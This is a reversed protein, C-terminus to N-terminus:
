KVHGWRQNALIRQVQARSVGFRQAIDAHSNPVIRGHGWRGLHTITRPHFQAYERIERVIDETIKAMGNREGLACRNKKAADRMNDLQTGLFLHDPRVCLPNDCRHCVFAGAPIPGFTLIWQFRSAVFNMKKPSRVAFLGYGKNNCCAKWNWCGESKNYKANFREISKQTIEM